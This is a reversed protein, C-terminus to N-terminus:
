AVESAATHAPCAACYSEVIERCRLGKALAVVVDPPIPRRGIEYHSLTVQSIGVKRALADQSLKRELRRQRILCGVM